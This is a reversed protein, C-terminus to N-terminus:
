VLWSKHPEYTGPMVFPVKDEPRLNRSSMALNPLLETVRIKIREMEEVMPVLDIVDGAFSFTLTGAAIERLPDVEAAKTGGMGRAVMGELQGSELRQDLREDVHELHDRITRSNLPCDARVGFYERLTAARDAAIPHARITRESPFFLKGLNAGANLFSQIYFLAEALKQQQLNAVQLLDARGGEARPSSLLHVMAHAAAVSSKLNELVRLYAVLGFDAQHGVELAYQKLHQEQLPAM